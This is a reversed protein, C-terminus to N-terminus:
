VLRCNCEEPAVLSEVRNTPDEVSRRTRQCRAAPQQHLESEALSVVDGDQYLPLRSQSEFAKAVIKLADCTAQDGDPITVITSSARDAMTRAFAAEARSGLAIDILVLPRGIWRSDDAALGCADTALEFLAARDAISAASLESEVRTLLRALDVTAPSGGALQASTVGALRLEHLTRALAKPFGPLRAVPGFYELDHEAIADFTARTALAEAGSLSSPVHKTRSLREAALRAALETFGVRVLGFTGGAEHAFTRAVDDAAGRSAAVILIEAAPAQSRLFQAVAGLRASASTSTLVRMQM